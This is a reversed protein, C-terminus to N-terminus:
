KSETIQKSIKSTRGIAYGLLFAFIGVVVVSFTLLDGIHSLKDADLLAM